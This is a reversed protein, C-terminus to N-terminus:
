NRFQVFTAVTNTITRGGGSEAVSITISAGGGNTSLTSAVVNTGIAKGSQDTIKKTTSSWQFYTGNTFAIKWYTSAVNSLTVSAEPAERLGYNTGVGYVMRDLAMSARTASTRMLTTANYSRLNQVFVNFTGVVVITLISVSILMEVLTFGSASQRRNRGPTKM